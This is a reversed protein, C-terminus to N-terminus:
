RVAKWYSAGQKLKFGAKDRAEQLKEKARELGEEAAKVEKTQNYVKVENQIKRVILGDVEHEECGEACRNDLFAYAAAKLDKEASSLDSLFHVLRIAEDKTSPKMTRLAARFGLLEPLKEM